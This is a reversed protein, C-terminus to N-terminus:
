LEERERGTMLLASLPLLGVVLVALSLSRTALFGIVPNLIVLTFRRFMGVLSLVTARHRSDIHKNAISTIYIARTFGIGGGLLVLILITALSPYAAVLLFSAATIIASSKLYTYDKGLFKEVLSFNSSVTIEALLLILHFYGFYSLPIGVERLLPQYFWVVFYAASSVLVSDLALARLLPTRRLQGLGSRVIELYRPSESSQSHIKPEPITWGIAAAILFPISTMLMPANIGFKVAIYSGIPAAIAIGLMHIANARGLILKSQSEKGESKLTDYLLAQDAGSTFAYGLAFLSEALLFITFSPFTGYLLVALGVILSGLAISHKRGLKDALAGTPVELIFVWFSFWSQLLQVQFLTIHGWDTFFPVLVASFFAFDKFFAYLYNRFIIKSM